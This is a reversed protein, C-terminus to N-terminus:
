RVLTFLGTRPDVAFRTYRYDVILLQKLLGSAEDYDESSPKLLTQGPTIAITSQFVTSIPYPYDLVRIPLTM